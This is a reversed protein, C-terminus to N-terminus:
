FSGKTDCWFNVPVLAGVLGALVGAEVGIGSVSALSPLLAYLLSSVSSNLVEQALEGAVGMGFIRFVASLLVPYLPSAHATPGTNFFADSFTGKSALSRAINVVETYEIYTYTKRFIVISLRIFFGLLFIILRIHRRAWLYRMDNLFHSM